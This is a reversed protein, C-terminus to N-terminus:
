DFIDYCDSAVNNAFDTIARGKMEKSQYHSINFADRIMARYLDSSSVGMMKTMAIGEQRMEMILTAAEHMEVCIEDASFEAEAYAAGTSMLAVALAISKVKMQVEM